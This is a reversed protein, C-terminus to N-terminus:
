DLTILEEFTDNVDKSVIKVWVKNVTQISELTFQIFPKYM